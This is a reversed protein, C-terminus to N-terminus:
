GETQSGDELETTSAGDEVGDQQGKTESASSENNPRVTASAEVGVVQEQEEGRIKGNPFLSDDSRCVECDCTKIGKELRVPCQCRDGFSYHKKDTAPGIWVPTPVAPWKCIPLFPEPDVDFAAEQENWKLPRWITRCDAHCGFFRIEPLERRAEQRKMRGSISDAWVKAPRFASADPTGPVHTKKFLDVKDGHCDSSLCIWLTKLHM